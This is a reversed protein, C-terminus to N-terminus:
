MVPVPHRHYYYFGVEEMELTVLRTVTERLWLPPLGNEKHLTAQLNWIEHRHPQSRMSPHSQRMTWFHRVKIIFKLSGSIKVVSVGSGEM